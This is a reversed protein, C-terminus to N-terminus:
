TISYIKIHTKWAGNLRSEVCCINRENNLIVYVPQPMNEIIRLLSGDNSLLHVNDSETGAVYIIDDCDIHLGYSFKLSPHSYLWLRTGENTIATVQSKLYNSYVIHEKKTIAVYLVGSETSFTKLKNGDTDMKIISDYCAVYLFNDWVSLGKCSVGVLITRIKQFCNVSIVEIVNSHPCSVFLVNNKRKIDFTKYGFQVEQQLNWTANNRYYKLINANNLNPILMESVSLLMLSRADGGPVKIEQCLELKLNKVDFTSELNEETEGISIEGIKSLKTIAKFGADVGAQITFDSIKLKSKKVYSLTKEAKLYETLFSIGHLGKGRELDTICHKMLNIRDGVAQVDRTLKEKCQKALKSMEDLYECELKEVHQIIRGKLNQIEETMKDTNDEIETINKEQKVKTESLKVEFKKLDQLLIDTSGNNRIKETKQEVTEVSECKRHDTCCCMACCPEEHDNCYLEIPRYKHKSCTIDPPMKLIEQGHMGKMEDLPFIKHDQTARNKRHCKTCIECIAESCDLCYNSAEEEESYRQCAECIKGSEIWRSFKDMLVNKPLNECWERFNLALSPSPVFKRCLPCDFGVANEKAQCESLIHSSLCEQCFMHLCPLYRPTKFQEFCISCKTLDEKNM